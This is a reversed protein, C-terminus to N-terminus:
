KKSFHKKGQAPQPKKFHFKKPKPPEADELEPMKPDIEQDDTAPRPPEQAPSANDEKDKDGKTGPPKDLELKRVKSLKQGGEYERDTVSTFFKKQEVAFLDAIETQSAPFRPYMRKRIHYHIAAALARTPHNDKVTTLDPHHPRPLTMNVGQEDYEEEPTLNVKAFKLDALSCLGPPIQLQVLPRVSHKLIFGFQDPDLQRGLATINQAVDAITSHAM